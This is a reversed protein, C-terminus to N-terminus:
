MHKVYKEPRLKVQQVTVPLNSTDVQTGEHLSTVNGEHM